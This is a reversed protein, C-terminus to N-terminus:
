WLPHITSPHHIPSPSPTPTPSTKTGKLVSLLLLYFLSFVHENCSWPQFHVYVKWVIPVQSCKCCIDHVHIKRWNDGELCRFCSVSKHIQERYKQKLIWKIKRCCQVTKKWGWTLIYWVLGLIIPKFRCMLLNHRVSLFPRLNSSTPLM